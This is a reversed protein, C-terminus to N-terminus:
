YPTLKPPAQRLLASTPQRCTIKIKVARTYVQYKALLPELANRLDQGVSVVSGGISTTYIPRHGDAAFM